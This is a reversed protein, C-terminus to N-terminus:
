DMGLILDFDHIHLPRLDVLLEKDGRKLVCDKYVEEVVLVDEVPTSMLLPQPLLSCPRDLHMCFTIAVFSHTAGLDILVYARENNISLM